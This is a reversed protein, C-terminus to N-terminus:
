IKRDFIKASVTKKEESKGNYGPKLDVNALISLSFNVFDLSNQVLESNAKNAEGLDSLKGTMDTSLQQLKTVAGKDETRKILESLTLESPSLSFHNALQQHLAMRQEELRGVQLILIEEAKTIKELEALDGKVLVSQKECALSLLKDYVAMQTDMNDLLRACLDTM